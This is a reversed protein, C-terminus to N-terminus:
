SRLEHRLERFAGGVQRRGAVLDRRDPVLLQPTEAQANIGVPALDIDDFAADLALLAEDGKALMPWHRRILGSGPCVVDEGFGLIAAIGRLLEVLGALRRGHLPQALPEEVLM